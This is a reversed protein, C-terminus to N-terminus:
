PRVFVTNRGELEFEVWGEFDEEGDLTNFDVDARYMGPELGRVVVKRMGPVEVDVTASPGRVVVRCPLFQRNVVRLKGRYAPAKYAGADVVGLLLFAVVVLLRRM